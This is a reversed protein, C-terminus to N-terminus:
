CCGSHGPPIIRISRILLVAVLILFIATGVGGFDFGRLFDM